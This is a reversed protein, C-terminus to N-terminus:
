GSSLPLHPSDKQPFPQTIESFVSLAYLYHLREVGKFQTVMSVLNADYPTLEDLDLALTKIASVQGTHNTFGTPFSLTRLPWHKPKLLLIADNEIDFRIISGTASRFFGTHTGLIVKRSMKSACFM